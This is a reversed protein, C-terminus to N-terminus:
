FATSSVTLGILTNREIRLHEKSSTIVTTDIAANAEFHMDHSGSPREDSAAARPGPRTLPPPTPLVQRGNSDVMPGAARAMPNDGSTPISSDHHIVRNNPPTMSQIVATIPLATGGKAEIRDFEIAVMSQPNEKTARQAKSIHGIVTGKSYPVIIKGNRDVNHMLRLAVIDGVKAKRTDIAHTLEGIVYVDKKLEDSAPQQAALSLGMVPLLILALRHIKM